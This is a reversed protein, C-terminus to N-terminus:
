SPLYVDSVDIRTQTTEDREEIEPRQPTGRRQPENDFKLSVDGVYSPSSHAFAQSTHEEYDLTDTLLGDANMPITTFVPSTTADGTQEAEWLDLLLRSILIAEIPLSFSALSNNINAFLLIQLIMLGCIILRRSGEIIILWILKFRSEGCTNKIGGLIAVIGYAKYLSLVMASAAFILQSVISLLVGTHLELDPHLANEFTSGRVFNFSIGRPLPALDRLWKCSRHM